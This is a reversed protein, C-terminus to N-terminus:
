SMASPGCCSMCGGVASAGKSARWNGCAVACTRMRLGPVKALADNVQRANYGSDAWVLELWPFRQRIKDLVM